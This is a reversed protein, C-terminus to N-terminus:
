GKQSANAFAQAADQDSARALKFGRQPTETFADLISEPVGRKKAQAPTILQPSSLGQCGSMAELVEPTASPKWAKRGYSPQVRRGPVTQGNQIAALSANEVANLQLDIREKAAELVDLIEALREGSADELTDANMATDVANYGAVRAAPCRAAAACYRCHPGTRLEDDLTALRSQIRMAFDRLQDQTIIWTRFSGDPHWPRPQYISMSIQTIGESLGGNLIAYGVLQWNEVAEVVRWGYKLDYLSLTNGDFVRVADTKGRLTVTPSVQWEASREIEFGTVTEVYPRLHDAMEASVFVGNSMQRDVLSDLDPAQGTLVLEAAEHAADGERAVDSTSKESLAELTVSGACEMVRALRSTGIYQM